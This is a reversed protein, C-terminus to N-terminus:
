KKVGSIVYLYDTDAKIDIHFLEKFLVSETDVDSLIDSVEAATRSHRSNIQHRSENHAIIFRGGKKLLSHLKQIFAEKDHFHPYARYIFARDFGDFDDFSGNGDSSDPSGPLSFDDEKLDLFNACLLHLCPDHFKKSAEELMKESIDIGWLQSPGSTLIHPFLAGTGCAIDLIKSGKDVPCLSFILETKRPDAAFDRDWHSAMGDFFDRAAKFDDHM